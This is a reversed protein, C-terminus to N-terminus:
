KLFAFAILVPLASFLSLLAGMLLIGIAEGPDMREGTEENDSIKFILWPLGTIPVTIFWSRSSDMERGIYCVICAAIGSILCRKFTIFSKKQINQDQRPKVALPPSQKQESQEDRKKIKALQEISGEDRQDAALQYWKRAEDIDEAVGQGFQYMFGLYSQADVNGQEAAKLYWKLAEAANKPVGFGNEYSNGLHNQSEADGKEAGERWWKAERYDPLPPSINVPKNTTQVVHQEEQLSKANISPNLEAQKTLMVACLLEAEIKPRAVNADRM